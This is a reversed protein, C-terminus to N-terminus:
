VIRRLRRGVVGSSAFFRWFVDAVVRLYGKNNAFSVVRVTQKQGIRHARAQAQSRQLLFSPSFIYFFLYIFLYLFVSPLFFHFFFCKCIMRHTHISIQIM